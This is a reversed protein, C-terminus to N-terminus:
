GRERLYMVPAMEATREAEIQAALEIWKTTTDRHPGIKDRYFRDVGLGDRRHAILVRAVDEVSFRTRRLRGHM